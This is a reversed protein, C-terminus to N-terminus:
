GRVKEVLGGYREVQQRVAQMFVTRAAALKVSRKARTIATYLLEKTLIPNIQDPLVILVEDFESGQSKHITMAFVTECHPLRSPLIKKFSGDPRQFYVMLKGTQEPDSLCLGIDGNYIHLAPDNQTAMVPRGNYWIGTRQILGAAVLRQEVRHNIDAVSNSGQRNSCLVQFRNFAQFIQRYDAQKAISELYPQQAASVYDILEAELLGINDRGQQLLQWASDAQQRNVADALQKINADFRYTKQLQLTNNPLAATLDALVAGSEVSALQDKDGLLILRAGTKLAEVLKCMLALDIMSAEDVVVLDFPLPHHADHYFYVSHPKVGLLRHLTSVSEPILARVPEDCPLGAKSAGISEQLRNAAKGTPAALAIHLPQPNLEQLLALIKVVTTTKGTGPGGSIICFKREVASKAAQRQWDIEGDVSPFYRELVPPSAVEASTERVMAAVRGALRTEYAWYRHLYLRDQELILPTRDTQSVLGSAQVLQRQESDLAICSHGHNQQSSLLCVIAEFRARSDGELQSRAALFAAFARDLRSIQPESEIM